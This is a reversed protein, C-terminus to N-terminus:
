CSSGVEAPGDQPEPDRAELTTIRGLATTLQTQLSTTQAILMAVQAQLTRVHAEIAASKEESSTWEIRAYVAERDLALATHRHYPRDRYLTNVRARLYARDDYAEEFRVQFEETREPTPLQSDRAGAPQVRGSRGDPFCSYIFLEREESACNEDKLIDNGPSTPPLSLTPSAAPLVEDSDRSWAIRAEMSAVDTSLDSLRRDRRLREPCLSGLRIHRPTPASEIMRLHREEDDEDDRFADVDINILLIKMVTMVQLSMMEWGVTPPYDAHRRPLGGRDRLYETHEPGPSVHYSSPHHHTSLGPVFDLSSPAEPWASTGPPHHTEYILCERSIRFAEIHTTLISYM